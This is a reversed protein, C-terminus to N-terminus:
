LWESSYRNSKLYQKYDFGKDNRAGDPKRYEGLFSIEDGYELNSEGKIRMQVMINCSKQEITTIKVKYYTVQEKNTPHSVVIGVYNNGKQMKRSKQEYTEDLIKTMMMAIVISISFVTM